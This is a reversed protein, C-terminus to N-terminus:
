KSHKFSQTFKSISELCVDDFPHQRSLFGNLVAMRIIKSRKIHVRVQNPRDPNPVRGKAVDMDILWRQEPVQFACWAIKDGNWLWPGNILARLKNQVESSRWVAM